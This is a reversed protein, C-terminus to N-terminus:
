MSKRKNSKKEPSHSRKRKKKSKSKSKKKKDSKMKREAPPISIGLAKEMALREKEKIDSKERAILDKAEATKSKNWWDVSRREGLRGVRCPCKSNTISCSFRTTSVTGHALQWSLQWTTCRGECRGM